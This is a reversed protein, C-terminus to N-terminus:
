QMATSLEQFLETSSRERMHSKLFPKLEAITLDDKNTLMDKFHGPKIMKLTRIIESKSFNEKVGEDIQKCVSSYSMDSGSDSIVGGYMKFERRPLLAAVDTLRVLGSVQEAVSSVGSVEKNNNATGMDSKSGTSFKLEDIKDRITLLCSMGEDELKKLQDIKMYDVIFEFLEPENTGTVEPM